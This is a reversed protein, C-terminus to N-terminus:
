SWLCSNLFARQKQRDWNMLINRYFSGCDDSGLKLCLLLTTLRPDAAARHAHYMCLEQGESAIKCQHKGSMFSCRPNVLDWRGKQHDVLRM